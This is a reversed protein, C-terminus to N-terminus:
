AWLSHSSNRDAKTTQETEWRQNRKTTKCSSTCFGGSFIRGVKSRPGDFEKPDFGQWEACDCLWPWSSLVPLPLSEKKVKKLTADAKGPIMYLVCVHPTLIFVGLESRRVLTCALVSAIIFSSSVGFTSEGLHMIIEHCVASWFQQPFHLDMVRSLFFFDM